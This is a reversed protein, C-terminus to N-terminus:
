LNSLERQQQKVAKREIKKVEKNTNEKLLVVFTRGDRNHALL